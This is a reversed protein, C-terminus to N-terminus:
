RKRMALFPNGRGSTARHKELAKRFDETIMKEVVAPPWELPNAPLDTSPSSVPAGTNSAATPITVPTTVPTTVPVTAAKKFGALDVAEPMWTEVDAPADAKWMKQLVTRQKTDSVGAADLADRFALESRMKSIEALAASENPVTETGKQKQPVSGAQLAALAAKVADNTERMGQALRNWDRHSPQAPEDGPKAEPIATVVPATTTAAIVTETEEM